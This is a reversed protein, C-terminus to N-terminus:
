WYGDAIGGKLAFYTDKRGDIANQPGRDDRNDSSTPRLLEVKAAMDPYRELDNDFVTSCTMDAAEPAGLSCKKNAEPM